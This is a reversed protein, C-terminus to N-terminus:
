NSVKLSKVCKINSRRSSKEKLPHGKNLTHWFKHHRDQWKLESSYQLHQGDILVFNNPGVDELIFEEVYISYGPPFILSCYNKTQVSSTFKDPIQAGFCTINEQYPRCISEEKNMLCFSTVQFNEFIQSHFHNQCVEFRKWFLPVATALYLFLCLLLCENKRRLTKELNYKDSIEFSHSILDCSANIM